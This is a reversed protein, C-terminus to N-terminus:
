VFCSIPGSEMNIISFASYLKQCGCGKGQLAQRSSKINRNLHFLRPSGGDIGDIGCALPLTRECKAKDLTLVFLLIRKLIVRALAENYGQKYLGEIKRCNLM